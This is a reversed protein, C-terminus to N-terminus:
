WGEDNVFMMNELKTLAFISRKFTHKLRSNSGGGGERGDKQNTHFIQGPAFKCFLCWVTFMSFVKESLTM